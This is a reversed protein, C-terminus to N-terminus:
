VGALLGARAIAKYYDAPTLVARGNVHTILKEPQLRAKDAASGPVVERIAVGDAPWRYLIANRQARLRELISNRPPTPVEGSGHGGIGYNLYAM